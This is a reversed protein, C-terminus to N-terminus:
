ECDMLEELQEDTWQLLSTRSSPQKQKQKRMGDVTVGDKDDSVEAIGSRSDNCKTNESTSCDMTEGNRAARFQSIEDHAAPSPENVLSVDHNRSTQDSCSGTGQVGGCQEYQPYGVTREETNTAQKLSSLIGEIRGKLQSSAKEQTSSKEWTELSSSREKAPPSCNEKSPPGSDKAIVKIINNSTINLYCTCRSPSFVAVKQLILVAGVSIEKAFGKERLVKRHITAGVTGTPDKLTVMMDGLGNPTCSKVIAVVQSVKDPATTGRKISCLPTGIAVGDGDVLGQRRVFEVACVWPDLTFDGDDEDGDELARRIYEQTPVATADEEEEGGGRPFGEELRRARRRMAARLAGAPGPIRREGEAGERRPPPELPPLSAPDPDPSRPAQSVLTQPGPHQSPPQSSRHSCPRLVSSSIPPDILTQRRKPPRRFSSLDSDDVDLAEWPEEM